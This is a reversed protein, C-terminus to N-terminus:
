GEEATVMASIASHEACFGMGSSTDICVGLYVNGKDSILASGVDGAMYDGNKRVRLLGAAQKILEDNTIATMNKYPGAFDRTSKIQAGIISESSLGPSAPI